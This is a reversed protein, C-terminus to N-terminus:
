TEGATRLDGRSGGMALGLAFAGCGIILTAASLILLVSYKHEFGTLSAVINSYGSSETFYLAAATMAAFFGTLYSWVPVNHYGGWLSFFVVPALFMSATGSVAVAAFLDKSGLFVMILGGLLFLAMAKRGNALTPRALRMDVVTLKAASSYTSDITSMCSVVLAVNFVLMPGDGILRTLTPIFAEGEAKSLGSWVGLLGFALICLISIWGAHYFSAMTTRRDAIFGRDMMVPDHMPYSWVQLLAVALLAWGPNTMDASSATVAAIDFTGTSLAIGALLALAILFVAMQFVDTRISANLGGVLSYGLTVAGVLLISAVYAVSGDTGFILGIVLLNAFVESLLRVGIVFNYTSTGVSGFRAQLFAQVSEFGNRFRLSSIIWAGTLFSLYYATYSLAGAIGFAYGLIAANLISRAFIWTTVQSLTLAVVGPTRGDPHHGRYFSLFTKARPSLWMSAIAVVAIVAILTSINDPM